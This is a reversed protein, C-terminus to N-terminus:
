IRRDRFFSAAKIHMMEMEELMLLKGNDGLFNSYNDLDRPIRLDKPRVIDDETLHFAREIIYKLESVNGPFDYRLLEVKTDSSIKKTSRVTSKRQLFFESLMIIDGGRDRLPPVNM